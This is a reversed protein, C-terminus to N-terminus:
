HRQEATLKPLSVFSRFLYFLDKQPSNLGPPAFQDVLALLGPKAGYRYEPGYWQVNFVIIRERLEVDITKLNRSIQEFISTYTLIPENPFHKLMSPERFFTRTKLMTLFM